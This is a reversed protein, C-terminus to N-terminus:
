PALTKNINDDSTGKPGDFPATTKDGDLLERGEKIKATIKVGNSLNILGPDFYCELVAVDPFPYVINILLGSLPTLPNATNNDFDVVSSCIWRPSSEYSEVTIMGWTTLQDWPGLLNKHTSRIRMLNGIPIVGVVLNSSDIILDINSVINPEANYERDVIQNAHTYALGEKILSLETRLTWDGLNDYQEWDKNQTPYFDVSANLQAIWYKWDLLWPAYIIVGFQTPTDITPDLILKVERKASTTPLTLNVGQTENLLYVGAGSIPVGAFSFNVTALTFDALTSTNFAEMKVSFSEYVQNKDLLFRGFYAVDDETDAIFGVKDGDILPIEQVNESHCLYGFDQVMPLPGGVPPDCTLQSGFALLNLNGCKIWFYFLRDNPDANDMFSSFAANPTFTGDITTVSGVTNIATIEVDYGAGSPNLYSNYVGVALNTTPIIMALSTQSPLVNKFYTNDIPRYSGGFGLETIPGDVSISFDTPVCYDLESIGSVLSADLISTNHPENFFGTNGEYSFISEFRAYPEGNFRAWLMKSYIKLCESSFFWTGDTYQGPNCFTVKVQWYSWGGVTPASHLVEADILFGGSQNGVITGFALGGVPLGALNTFNIQTVEADILSFESGPNSNKSHNFTLDLGDREVKQYSYQAAVVYMSVFEGATIDYWDQIAGFDCTVDDVYQVQTWFTFIVGGGSSHIYVVVWDNVRFGEELWSISPSQVTNMGIGPDLTLPNAVSTMRINQRINFVAQFKDGANGKYYTLSNGWEDLFDVSDILVGM